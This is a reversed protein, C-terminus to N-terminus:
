LQAFSHMTYIEALAELRMNEQLFESRYLRSRARYLKGSRATCCGTVAGASRSAVIHLQGPASFAHPDGSDTATAGDFFVDSVALDVAVASLTRPNGRKAIRQRRSTPAARAESHAVLNLPELPSPGFGEFRECWLDTLM